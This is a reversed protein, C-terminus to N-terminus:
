AMASLWGPAVEDDADCFVIADSQAVSVGVNRGHAAGRQASADVLRFHTFQDAYKEAIAQTGDTSGNDAVILEWPQSFEQRALAELQIAITGAANYCPIVVTLQM